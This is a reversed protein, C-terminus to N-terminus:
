GLGIVYAGRSPVKPSLKAIQADSMSILEDSDVDAYSTTVEPYQVSRTRLGTRMAELAGIVMDVGVGIALTQNLDGNSLRADLTPVRDRMEALARAIFVNAQALEPEVLTEGLQAQVDEIGFIDPM